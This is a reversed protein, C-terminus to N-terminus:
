SIIRVFVSVFQCVFLRRQFCMAESRLVPPYFVAFKLIFYTVILVQYFAVDPPTFAADGHLSNRQDNVTDVALV